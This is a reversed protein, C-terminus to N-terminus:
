SGRWGFRQAAPPQEHLLQVAGGSLAAPEVGDVLVEGVVPRRDQLAEVRHPRQDPWAQRVGPVDLDVGAGDVEVGVRQESRAVRDGGARELPPRDQAREPDRQM